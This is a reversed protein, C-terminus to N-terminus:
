HDVRSQRSHVPWLARNQNTGSRSTQRSARHRAKAPPRRPKRRARPAPLPPVPNRLKDLERQLRKNADRLKISERIISRSPFDMGKPWAFDEPTGDAPAPDPTWRKRKWLKRRVRDLAEPDETVSLKLGLAALMLGLSVQGLRRMPPQVFVKSAYGNPLGSVEDICEHCVGLQDRRSRLAAVLEAYSRIDTPLAV